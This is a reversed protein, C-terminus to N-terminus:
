QSVDLPERDASESRAEEIEVGCCDSEEDASYRDVLRNWLRGLTSETMM